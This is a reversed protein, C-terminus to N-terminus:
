HQGAPGLQQGSLEKIEPTVFNLVGIELPFHQSGGMEIDVVVRLHFLQGFDAGAEGLLTKGIQFVFKIEGNVPAYRENKVAAVQM